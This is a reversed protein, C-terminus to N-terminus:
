VKRPLGTYLLDLGALSSSPMNAHLQLHTSEAASRDSAALQLTNSQGDVIFVRSVGHVPM